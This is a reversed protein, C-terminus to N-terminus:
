CPCGNGPPPGPGPQPDRPPWEVASGNVSGGVCLKFYPQPTPGCQMEMAGGRLGSEQVPEMRM